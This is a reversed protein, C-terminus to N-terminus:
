KLVPFGGLIVAAVYCALGWAVLRTAWAPPSAPPVGLGVVIFLVDALVLLLIHFFVALSM